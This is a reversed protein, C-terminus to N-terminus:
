FINKMEDLFSNKTKPYELKQREMKEEKKGTLWQKLCHNFIFRLASSTM